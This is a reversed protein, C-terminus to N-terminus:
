DGTALSVAIIEVQSQLRSSWQSGTIQLQKLLRSLLTLLQLMAVLRAMQVSWFKEDIDYTNNQEGCAHMCAHVSLCTFSNFLTLSATDSKNESQVETKWKHKWLITIWGFSLITVVLKVNLRFFYQSM